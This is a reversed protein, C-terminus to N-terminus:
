LDGREIADLEKRLRDREARLDDVLRVIPFSLGFDSVQGDVAAGRTETLMFLAEDRRREAERRAADAEDRAVRERVLAHAVGEREQEAHLRAAAERDARDTEAALRHLIEGRSTPESM